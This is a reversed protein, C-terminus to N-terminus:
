GSESVVSRGDGKMELKPPEQGTPPRGAGAQGPTGSGQGPSGGVAGGAPGPTVAQGTAQQMRAQFDMVRQQAEMTQEMKMREWAVWREMITTTGKPAPGFEEEFGFKKAMTWPDLPFGARWLTQYLLKESMQQIQHRTGPKVFFFFSNIHARAREALSFKSEVMQGADDTRREFAMHSPIMRLPDYDYFIRSDKQDETQQKELAREYDSSLIQVRRPKTYYQLALGKWIEGAMRLSRELSRIMGNVLPGIARMLDEITEGSPMQGLKSLASFDMTGILYDSRQEMEKMHQTIWLPVDYFGPPLAPKVLDGQMMDMGFRQGEQRPDFRNVTAEDLLKDDWFLAPRIRSRTSDNIVRMLQNNDEDISFVERLLSYPLFEWPWKDFMVPVAPVMGHWNPSSGDFLQLTETSILLRRFPYLMADKETALRYQTTGERDYGNLVNGGVSSVEYEAISGPVGMKVPKGTENIAPDLVYTYRITVMPWSGKSKEPENTGQGFRQLVPSVFKSVFGRGKQILSQAEADPKIQDAFKPFKHRALSLPMPRLITVSYAEQINHDPGIEYPLVSEVGAAYMVIEGRGPTWYSPDWDFLLYGQCETAAYQLAEKLVQDAFTNMWWVSAMKDLVQNERFLDKNDTSYALVHKLSSISEVIERIQRKSRNVRVKSLTGPVPATLPGNIKDRGTLVDQYASQNKLFNQSALITHNIWRLKDEPTGSLPPLLPTDPSTAVEHRMGGDLIGHAM